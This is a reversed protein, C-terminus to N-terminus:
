EVQTAARLDAIARDLKQRKLSEVIDKKVDDFPPLNIARMDDVRIIHWGYGSHVLNASTEGKGLARVADAFPKVYRAPTSWGLDGGSEKSGEDTSHQKALEAFDGGAQLKALADRAVAEDEFLIHRVSYETDGTQATLRQFEALAENDDVTATDVFNQIFANALIGTHAQSLQAAVEAGQDLGLTVAQQAMAEMVIMRERLQQRLEPTDSQQTQRSVQRVLQDMREKSITVGNVSFPVFEIPAPTEAAVEGEQQAYLNPAVAILGAAILSLTLRHM